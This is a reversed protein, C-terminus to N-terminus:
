FAHGLGISLQWNESGMVNQRGNWIVQGNPRTPDYVSTAYDIRFPGVPTDFRYGIGLAVVSGRWLDELRMSGYLDTTLRNFANGVDTFLTIGSREVTQAWLGTAGRPREFKFRFEMGLELLTGSGVVNSLIREDNPDELGLSGSNPDHLLRAPFSRISAAGGAFFQRELPVYTNTDIPSGREFELLQIHGLKVKTAIM